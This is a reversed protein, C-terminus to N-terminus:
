FKTNSIKKSSTLHWKGCTPCHYSVLNIDAHYIMQDQAVFDAVQKSAYQTKDCVGGFSFPQHKSPKTRNNRRPM